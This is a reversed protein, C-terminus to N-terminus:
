RCLRLIETIFVARAEPNTSMAAFGASRGWGGICLWLRMGRQGTEARVKALAQAIEPKVAIHGTPAPEVSFFLVETVGKARDFDYGDVRYEPLYGALVPSPMPPAAPASASGVALCAGM